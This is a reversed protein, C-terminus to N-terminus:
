IGVIYKYVNLGLSYTGSSKFHFLLLFLINVTFRMLVHIKSSVLITNHIWSHFWANFRHNKFCIELNKLNYISLYETKFPFSIKALRRRDLRNSAMAFPPCFRRPYPFSPFISFCKEFVYIEFVLCFYQFHTRKSAPRFQRLQMTTSSSPAIPGPPFHAHPRWRPVILNQRLRPARSPIQLTKRLDISSSSFDM